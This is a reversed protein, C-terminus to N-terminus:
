KFFERGQISDPLSNGRGLFVAVADSSGLQYEPNNFHLLM